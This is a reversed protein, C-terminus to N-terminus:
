PGIDLGAVFQKARALADAMRHCEEAALSIGGEILAALEREIEDIQSQNTEIRAQFDMISM